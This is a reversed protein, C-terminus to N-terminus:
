RCAEELSLFCDLWQSAMIAFDEFDVKCDGNIDGDMDVLCWAIEPGDLIAAYVQSNGSRNDQWVVVNGSIAPNTQDNSDDTIQFEKRTTLNYGFIDWNNNRDDQWVIINGNIDPNTQSSRNTSVAFEIINDFKARRLTEFDSIDAAYIDWNGSFNDQWVVVNDWIAPNQQDKESYSVPVEVPKNRQWIDAAYIDWDGFFNDQWVVTTRFVAPEQQDHEFASVQFEVPNGPDTIDAGYINFDGAVGDEWVVINGHIAPNTENNDVIGSVVYIRPEDFDNIDAARIDWDASGQWQVYDQWVVIDEFVAPNMQDNADGIVFVAPEDPNNIDAIYIDYDGYESVFQQWVVINGWIAPSQQDDTTPLLPFETWNGAQSVSAPIAVLFIVEATTIFSKINM